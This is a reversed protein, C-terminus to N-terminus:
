MWRGAIGGEQGRFGGDGMGTHGTVRNRSTNIAATLQKGLNSALHVDTQATNQLMQGQIFRFDM